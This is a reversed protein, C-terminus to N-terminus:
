LALMRDVSVAHWDVVHCLLGWSWNTPRNKSARLEYSYTSNLSLCATSWISGCTSDFQGPFRYLDGGREKFMLTGLSTTVGFGNVVGENFRARSEAETPTTLSRVLASTGVISVLMQSPFAVWIPIIFMKTYFFFELFATSRTRTGILLM